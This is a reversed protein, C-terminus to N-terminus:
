NESSRVHTPTPAHNFKVARGWHRFRGSRPRQRSYAINKSGPPDITTKNPQPACPDDNYSTIKTTCLLM